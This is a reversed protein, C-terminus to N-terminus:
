VRYQIRWNWNELVQPNVEGILGSEKGEILLTGVRGEHAGHTIDRLEYILGINTSLADLVAKTENFNANSHIILCALKM